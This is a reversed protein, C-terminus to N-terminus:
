KVGGFINELVRLPSRLYAKGCESVRNTSFVGFFSIQTFFLFEHRIYLCYSNTLV